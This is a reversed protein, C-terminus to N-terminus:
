LNVYSGGLINIGIYLVLALLGLCFIALNINNLKEAEVVYKNSPESIKEDETLGINNLRIEVIQLYTKNAKYSVLYSYLSFVINSLNLLWCIIIIWNTFPIPMNIITSMFSFSIGFIASSILFMYKDFQKCQDYMNKIYLDRSKELIKVYKKEDHINM